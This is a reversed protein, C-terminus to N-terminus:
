EFRNAWLNSVGNLNQQWAAVATGNPTVALTPDIIDGTNGVDVPTSWGTGPTYVASRANYHAGDFREWLALADGQADFAIQPVETKESAGADAASVRDSPGWTGGAPLAAYWIHSDPLIADMREWIALVDGNQGIALQPTVSGSGGADILKATEWGADPTYRNSWISGDFEDWSAEAAGNANCVVNSNFSHLTADGGVLQPSGWTDTAFKYTSSWIHFVAGSQTSETQQWVAVVNGHADAALHESEANGTTTDIQVPAGWTTASAALRSYYIHYSTGDFQEWSVLVNGSSDFVVQPYVSTATATDIRVATSWGGSGTYRSEWIQGVLNQGVGNVLRVWVVMADGNEAIAVSPSAAVVGGDQEGISTPASWTKSEPAYRSAFIQVAQGLPRQRWALVASGHANMALRPSEEAHAEDQHIQTATQWSRNAEPTVCSVSVNTITATSVTGTGNSVTCVQAPNSPQSQISVSYSTGQTLRDPFTFADNGAIPLHTTGNQLALGSGELGTVSGGLSYTPAPAPGNGKGGSDQGCAICLVLAVSATLAIRPSM